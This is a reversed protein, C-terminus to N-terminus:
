PLQEQSNQVLRRQREAVIALDIHGAAHDKHCRIETRDLHAVHQRAADSKCGAHLEVFRVQGCHTAEGAKTAAEIAALVNPPFYRRLWWHHHLLHKGIRGIGM